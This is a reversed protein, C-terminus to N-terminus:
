GPLSIGLPKDCHFFDSCFFSSWVRIQVQINRLIEFKVHKCSLEQNRQFRGKEQGGYRVLHYRQGDLEKIWFGLFSEIGERKWGNYKNLWCYKISSRGDALCHNQWVSFFIYYVLYERGEHHKCKLWEMITKNFRNRLYM